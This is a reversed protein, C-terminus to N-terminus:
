KDNQRVEEAVKQAIASLKGETRTIIKILKTNHRQLAEAAQLSESLGQYEYRSAQAGALQTLKRIRKENEAVAKDLRELRNDIGVMRSYGAMLKASAKKKASTPLQAFIHNTEALRAIHGNRIQHAKARLQAMRQTLSGEAPLIRQLQKLIDRAGEPQSTLNPTENRLRRFRGSIRDSLNKNDYLDRMDHRVAMRPEPRSPSYNHGHRHMLFAMIGVILATTTIVQIIQPDIPIKLGLLMAILISAGLALIAGSWSGGIQRISQYMVLALLIVAFGVAVPGLDRISFHNVKEWWVLGTSLALGLAASMAVAPRERGFRKGLIAFTLSTFFTFALVFDPLLTQWLEYLVLNQLWAELRM